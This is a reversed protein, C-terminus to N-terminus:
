NLILKGSKILNDEALLQYVYMGNELNQREFEFKSQNSIYSKVIKGSLNYVKFSYNFVETDNKTEVEIIARQKCPNPYVEVSFKNEFNEDVGVQIEGWEWFDDFNTGNTGIGCYAKNGITFSLMYRRKTGPFDPLQVCTNTVPDFEWMDGYNTGSSFNDGTLIYGKGNLAFATAEMRNTPGINAKQIWTDTLPNYEWLDNTSGLGSVYGTGVYGKGNIAFAVASYRGSTPMPSKQVWSNTTPNYEWLDNTSGPSVQLQGTAVYGKGNATFAVAGRRPTGGMSAKQTWSNTTADYEWLDNRYTNNQDRGTGVYAKNGITFSITHYRLGGGFNAKQTWTNSAPDYEWFDDFLTNQIANYHGLGMYGKNGIVFASGRHRAVGGFNARQKWVFNTAYSESLIITLCILLTIRLFKNM